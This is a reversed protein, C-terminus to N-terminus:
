PIRVSLVNNSKDGEAVVNDADIVAIVFKGSANTGAQLVPKMKIVASQGRPLAPVPAQGLLLDDASLSVDTSLYFRVISAGANGPGQNIINVSGHISCTAVSKTTKCQQAASAWNGTLDPLPPAVQGPKLITTVQTTSNNSTDPDPEFATVSATNSIGGPKTPTVVITVTASSGNSLTGLSCTVPAATSCSGQSTVASVFTLTALLSDTMMVDNAASPGHNTVTITYTLPSGVFAPDTSDSNGIALDASATSELEFRGIRNGSLETFWLNGDPGVTIDYLSAGATIGASFETVVGSPTIRGIRNGFGETFWLNGDPGAIIGKPVAGASIGASFAIAVGSPTIRGIRNSATFWLNGDPGATIDGPFPSVNMGFATVVGASTIRGVHGTCFLKFVICGTFWLNGDSGVTIGAPRGNLISGADFETVIGAPTIRAVRKGNLETFWVNGDPGATIDYPEASATIGDSFETVVGLPTIRGIRNGSHETFWLNGDPGATIRLPGAGASIGASFETVVGAPTIRGIRNGSQETFWLNGDPGTTIGAPGASASIGASFETVQAGTGGALFCFSTIVCGLVIRFTKM